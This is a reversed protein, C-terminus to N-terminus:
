DDADSGDDLSIELTFIIESEDEAEGDDESGDSRVFEYLMFQFVPDEEYDFM